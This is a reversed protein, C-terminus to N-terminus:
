VLKLDPKKRPKEGAPTATEGEVRPEGDAAEAGAAPADFFLGQGNERAYVARVAAVPVYLSRPRGSFRASFVLAEDGMDLGRVAREHINLVIAGDRVFEPPVDVGSMGADVLIQPTLGADMCWQWIARLLYPKTSPLKDETDTM